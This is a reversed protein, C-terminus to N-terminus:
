NEVPRRDLRVVIQGDTSDIELKGWENVDADGLKLAAKALELTMAGLLADTKAGLKSTTGLKKEAVALVPWRASDRTKDPARYIGFGKQQAVRQYGNDQVFRDWDAIPKARGTRWLGHVHLQPVVIVGPMNVYARTPVNNGHEAPLVRLTERMMRGLHQPKKVDVDHLWHPQSGNPTAIGLAHEHRWREKAAVPVPQEKDDLYFGQELPKRANYERILVFKGKADKGLFTYQDPQGRLARTLLPRGYGEKRLGVIFDTWGIRGRTARDKLIDYPSPREGAGRADSTALGVLCLAFAGTWRSIM